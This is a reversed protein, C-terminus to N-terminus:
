HFVGIFLPMYYVIDFLISYTFGGKLATIKFTMMIMMMMMMLLMIMIMMIMMMMDM